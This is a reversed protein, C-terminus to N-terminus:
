NLGNWLGRGTESIGGKKENAEKEERELTYTDIADLSRKRMTREMVPKILTRKGNEEGLKPKRKKLNLIEKEGKTLVSNIM